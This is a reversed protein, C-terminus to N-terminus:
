LHYPIPFSFLVRGSRPPCQYSIARLEYSTPFSALVFHNPILLDALLSIAELFLCAKERCIIRNENASVYHRGHHHNTHGCASVASPHKALDAPLSFRTAAILPSRVTLYRARDWLSAECQPAVVGAIGSDNVQFM